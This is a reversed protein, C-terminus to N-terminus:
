LFQVEIMRKVLQMRDGEFYEQGYDTRQKFHQGIHELIDREAIDLIGSAVPVVLIIEYGKDYGSMRSNFSRHTKGIKYVNENANLSARTRIMYIFGHLAHTTDTSEVFKKQLKKMAPELQTCLHNYADMGNGELRSSLLTYLRHISGHARLETQLELFLEKNTVLANAYKKLSIRIKNTLKTFFYASQDRYTTLTHCTLLTHVHFSDLSQHKCFHLVNCENLDSVLQKSQQVTLRDRDNAQQKLRSSIHLRQHM